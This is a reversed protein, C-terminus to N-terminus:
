HKRPKDLSLRLEYHSLVCFSHFLPLQKHRFIAYSSSSSFLCNVGTLPIDAEYFFPFNVTYQSFVCFLSLSGLLPYLSSLESPYKQTVLDVGIYGQFTRVLGRSRRGVDAHGLSAIAKLHIRDVLIFLSQQLLIADGM